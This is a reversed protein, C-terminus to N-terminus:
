DFDPLSHVSAIEAKEAERERAQQLRQSSSLSRRGSGGSGGGRSKRSGGTPPPTKRAMAVLDRKGTFEKEKMKQAFEIYDISGSSDADVSRLLRKMQVDSMPINLGREIGRRFEAHSVTGDSNEDFQGFLKNLGRALGGAKDLILRHLKADEQEEASLVKNAGRDQMNEIAQQAYKENTGSISALGHNSDTRNQIESTQMYRAFEGYDTYGTGDPDMRACLRSFEDDSFKVELRGLGRKLEAYTLMSDRDEDFKRFETLLEESKNEIARKLKVDLTRDIRDAESLEQGPKLPEPTKPNWVSGGSLKNDDGFAAVGSKDGAASRDVDKPKMKEAFEFYDIIGSNDADVHNVLLNYDPTALPVGLGVELGQRFEERNVTGDHNADFKLFAARVSNTKQSVKDHINQQLEGLRKQQRRRITNPTSTPPPTIGLSPALPMETPTQSPKWEQVPTGPRSALPQYVPALPNTQRITRMCKEVSGTCAKDIDDTRMVQRTRCDRTVKTLEDARCGPIDSTRLKLDYDNPNRSLERFGKPKNGRIDWSDNTEPDYCYVPELPNGASRRFVFAAAACM